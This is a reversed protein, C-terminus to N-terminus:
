TIHMEQDGGSAGECRQTSITSNNCPAIWLSACFPLALSSLNHQKWPPGPTLTRRIKQQEEEEEAAAAEEREKNERKNDGWHGQERTGTVGQKAAFLSLEIIRHNHTQWRGGLLIYSLKTLSSWSSCFFWVMGCIMRRPPEPLLVQASPQTRMWLLTSERASTTLLFSPKEVILGPPSLRETWDERM